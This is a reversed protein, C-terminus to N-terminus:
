ANAKEHTAFIVKNKGENFHSRLIEGRGTNVLRQPCFGRDGGPVTMDFGVVDIMGRDNPDALIFGNSTIGM